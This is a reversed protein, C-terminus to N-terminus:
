MGKRFGSKLPKGPRSNKLLEGDQIVFQGNVMVYEMGKSALRPNIYTALPKINKLDFVIIDADMGPQIRGKYKADNSATSILNAPLLSGRRFVDSLTMTKKDRVYHALVTTFTASSRPHSYAQDPIPWMEERFEQGNITFPMADSAIMTDRFLVADDIYKMDAPKSEDLYHIVAMGGPDAAQIEALRENTAPFEGTKAYMIDSSKIHIQSLQNPRLFPAGIVASGAGWPYAETTIRIQKGQAQAILPIVANINKLSTSNIHCMHMRAGTGAAVGITELFGEVAGNPESTNKARMHTYIPVDYKAALNGLAVYEERNTEPAYGIVVGIGIGGDLMEQEILNVVETSKDATLLKSWNPKSFNAQATQLTGDLTTVGDAVFLRAGAWSAAYGYNLPLHLSEAFAYAKKIPFGGAELELSTTVGDHAQMWFSPVNIAHSHLDIFGPGLVKGKANIELRGKLPAESIAAIKNGNVGVDRIGDLSTEPDIVRAQKFVVDYTESQAQSPAASIFCLTILLAKAVQILNNIPVRKELTAPSRGVLGSHLPPEM